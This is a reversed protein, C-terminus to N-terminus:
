CGGRKDRSCGRRAVVGAAVVVTRTSRQCLCPLAPPITHLPPLPVLGERRTVGCSVGRMHM